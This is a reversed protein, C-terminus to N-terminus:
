ASIRWSWRFPWNQFWFPKCSARLAEQSAQLLSSRTTPRTPASTTPSSPSSTTRGAHHDTFRWFKILPLLVFMLKEGRPGYYGVGGGVKRGEEDEDMVAQKLSQAGKKVRAELRKRFVSEGEGRLVRRLHETHWGRKLREGFCSWDIEPYERLEWEERATKLKHFRCFRQQMRYSIQKGPNHNNEFDEKWLRLVQTKCIPCEITPLYPKPPSLFQAGEEADSSGLDSLPSSSRDYDVEGTPSRPRQFSPGLDDNSTSKKSISPLQFKSREEEQKRKKEEETKLALEKEKEQKKSHMRRKTAGYGAKARKAPLAHINGIDSSSASLRPKKFPSTKQSCLIGDDSSPQDSDASRKSAASQHRTSGPLKFVPEPRDDKPGDVQLLSFSSSASPPTSQRKISTPQQFAPQEDESSIPDANIEEETLIKPRTASADINAPNSAPPTPYVEEQHHDEDTAYTQHNVTKLLRRANRTLGAVRAM